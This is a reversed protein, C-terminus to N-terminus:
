PIGQPPFCPKHPPTFRGTAELILALAVWLPLRPNMKLFGNLSTGLSARTELGTVGVSRLLRRLRDVTAPEIDYKVRLGAAKLHSRIFVEDAWTQRLDLKGWEIRKLRQTELGATYHSSLSGRLPGEDASYQAKVAGFSPLYPTPVPNIAITQM